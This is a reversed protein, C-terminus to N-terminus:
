KGGCPINGRQSRRRWYQLIPRDSNFSAPPEWTNEDPPYDKWKVLYELNNRKGRHNVIAEVEYSTTSPQEKIPKLKSPPLDRPLLSGISDEIQYAGGKTRRIIKFPGVFPAEGPQANDNVIMVPTGPAYGPDKVISVQNDHQKAIRKNYQETRSQLTPFVVQRMMHHREEIQAPSLPKTSPKIQEASDGYARGFMLAFPTSIHRNPIRLNLALQVSPLYADWHEMDGQVLKYLLRKSLKVHSEAAGNARPHYPSIFRHDINALSAIQNIILNSFETGNDSQIIQPIGFDTFIMYLARSVSEATKDMIPRLIVFRTAIDVLLLVYNSGNTSPTLPGFLDIAVHDFPLAASITRLPHFGTKGTNYKLCQQCTAIKEQCQKKMLPWYYGRAWTQEFLMEAGMHGQNHIHDLLKSREEHTGPDIKNLREHIFSNLKQDVNRAGEDVALLNIKISQETKNTELLPELVKKSPTLDSEEWFSPPYLRSLSDELIMLFGPRHVVTFDYDLLIDAWHNLMYNEHKQTFLFSLARHDTFLTFHSGWLWQRFKRLAFVIALLERRTAPYNRQASNLAQSAFSIYRRSDGVEQYLVAGVGYQSADTGVLFPLSFDPMSLIPPQSLVKKFTLFSQECDPSWMPGVWKVKRLAELPAAIRSYCPIYDRLYSTFGLLSEVQKGSLPRSMLAFTSTKAPDASITNGTLIHGLLQVRVYAFHCKEPRLKLNAATLTEIVAILHSAHLDASASFVLCDDVFIIVFALHDKLATMMTRQFLATLFKIGFPAGAFMYRIGNWTFTTKIRHPPHVPFQHYSWMLDLSSAVAFGNLKEFLQKIIPIPYAEDEVINNLHRPDLCVRVDVKNGLADKKPAVTLPSNWPSDPPAHMTIGLRLWKEVQADV